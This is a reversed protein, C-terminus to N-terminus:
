DIVKGMENTPNKAGRGCGLQSPILFREKITVRFSITVGSVATVPSRVTRTCNRFYKDVDLFVSSIALRFRESYKVQVILICCCCRRFTGM